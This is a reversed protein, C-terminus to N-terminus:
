QVITLEDVINKAGAYKDIMFLVYRIDVCITRQVDTEYAIDGSMAEWNGDFALGILQGDGNIVPSGSNGGSIDLTALFCVDLKGDANAYKGYDKKKYLEKLKKPVIFEDNTSDEKEMVGDLTTYYDYHVADAPYYDEVKGYSMRMTSNANPYFKKDPYMEKLGAVYLRDGKNIKEEIGKLNAYVDLYSKIMSRMTIWGMDKDIVKFSPKALFAYMKASDVFVSKGFVAAAFKDFDGGYKKVVYDAFVSPHQDKPVDEYYMKLLESCLKQDIAKNYNKYFEVAKEKFAVAAAKVGDTKGAPDKKLKSYLDFAGYAYYIFEPGQFAAEELFKMPLNYKKMEDYGTSLYILASDYKLKRTKDENVWATFAAEQEQKKEYVKLRKLGKTQGIFYKWYNSSEAYKAAYQIKITPSADMFEKIIALKKDRIKVTYPNSQDIALKVGYSTLFRDTRGPYGWVMAFDDKKVGKLSIPLSYKPKLPINKDSYEAPTGDPATYIRFISFDGTHRPWMWNDTDGGYKGVASPPAGVLRVDKYTQYVFMYYENGDFFGKVSAEYKGKESAVKELKSSAEEIKSARTAEDMDDTVSGLVKDTVDEMRVLFSATLDANSLEEKKSMAWFGDTLYDHDVTSHAQISEYGCHHNTFILGENSVVEATCFFGLSVIADKLSSHNVSYIEDATLHLGMKQMDVYNLREIFMPLWMGEDPVAAFGKFGLTVAIFLAFLFKKM